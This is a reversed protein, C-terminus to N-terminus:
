WVVLGTSEFLQHCELQLKISHRPGAAQLHGRGQISQHLVASPRSVSLPYPDFVWALVGYETRSSSMSAGTWTLLRQVAEAGCDRVNSGGPDEFM